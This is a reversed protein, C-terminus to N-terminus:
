GEFLKKFFLKLFLSQHENLEDFNLGKLSQIPLVGKKVLFMQFKSLNAIKRLKYSDMLKFHDWLAYQFAYKVDENIEILKCALFAYYENFTQEQACCATIVVGIEKNQKKSLKLKMLLQAADIFDSAGMVAFFIKKRIETTFRQTQAM